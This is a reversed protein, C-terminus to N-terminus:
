RRVGRLLKAAAPTNCANYDGAVLEAKNLEKRATEHRIALNQLKRVDGIFNAQLVAAANLVLLNQAVFPLESFPMDLTLDAVVPATHVYTHLTTNYLRNGRKVYHFSTDIPDVSLCTSPLVIESDINLNLTIAQETNFWLGPALVELRAHKLLLVSSLVDPHLSDLTSVPSEGIASLMINVAELDTLM